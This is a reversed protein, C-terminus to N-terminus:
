VRAQLPIKFTRCQAAVLPEEHDDLATPEVNCVAANVAGTAAPSCPLVLERALTIAVHRVLRTPLNYAHFVLCTRRPTQVASAGRFITTSQLM